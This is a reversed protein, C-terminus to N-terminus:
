PDQARGYAVFAPTRAVVVGLRDLRAVTEAFRTETVIVADRSFLSSFDDGTLQHDELMWGKRDVCFLIDPSGYHAFAVRQDPALVATLADCIRVRSQDVEYWSHFSVNRVFTSVAALWLVAALAVLRREESWSRRDGVTQIAHTIGLAMLVTAIPVIPLQYYNHAFNGPTIVVVYLLFAAVGLPEAWRGQRVAVVLGILAAIAGVPSLLDKVLRTAIKSVFVWSFLLSGDFLKNTVGFTLGTTEYLNHAHTFWAAAAAAAVLGTAWLPWRWLGRAGDREIFLGAVAGGIGLFTPKVVAILAMSAILATLAGRSGSGLYVQAARLTAFCLLALIAENMFAREVYMTLPLGVAYLIVATLAAAPGYRDRVFAGLLWASFPFTLISLARGLHTSFGVVSAILAVLFAHLEFGTEVYGVARDGRFDVQPYLPNLREEVFNRAVAATDAQRWSHFDFLPSQFTAARAMLGLTIACVLVIRGRCSFGAPLAM